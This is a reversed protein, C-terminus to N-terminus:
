TVRKNLTIIFCGPSEQVNSIFYPMGDFNVLEEVLPRKSLDTNKCYIKKTQLNVGQADYDERVNNADEVIRLDSGNWKCVRAFEETNLFVSDFDNAIQEKLNM